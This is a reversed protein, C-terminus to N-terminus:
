QAKQLMTFMPMYVSMLLAAIIFGMIVLVLPEILSV